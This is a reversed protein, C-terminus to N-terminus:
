CPAAIFSPLFEPGCQRVQAQAPAAGAFGFAAVSGAIALAGTTLRRSINTIM